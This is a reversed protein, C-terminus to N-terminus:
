YLKCRHCPVVGKFMNKETVYVGLFTAYGKLVVRTNYDHDHEIMCKVHLVVHETGEALKLVPVPRDDEIHAIIVYHDPEAQAVASHYTLADHIRM